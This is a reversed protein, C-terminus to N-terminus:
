KKLDTPIKIEKGTEQEVKRERGWNKKEKRRKV